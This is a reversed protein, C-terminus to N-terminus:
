KIGNFLLIGSIYNTFNQAGNFGGFVWVQPASVDYHQYRYCSDGQPPHVNSMLKTSDCIRFSCVGRGPPVRRVGSVRPHFLYFGSQLFLTFDLHVQGEVM